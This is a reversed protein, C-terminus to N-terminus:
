DLLAFAVVPPEGLIDELNKLSTTGVIPATVGARGGMLARNFIPPPPPNLEGDKAMSWAIAIQAM